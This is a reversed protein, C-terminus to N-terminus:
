DKKFFSHLTAMATANLSVGTVQSTLRTSVSSETATDDAGTHVSSLSSRNTLGNYHHHPVRAKSPSRDPCAFERIPSSTTAALGAFAERNM